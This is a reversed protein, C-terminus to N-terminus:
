FSGVRSHLGHLIRMEPTITQNVLMGLNHNRERWVPSQPPNGLTTSPSPRRTSEPLRNSCAARSAARRRLWGLQRELMKQYIQQVLGDLSKFPRPCNQSTSRVSIDTSRDNHIGTPFLLNCAHSSYTVVVRM